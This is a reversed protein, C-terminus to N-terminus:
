PASLTLTGGEALTGFRCREPPLAGLWAAHIEPDRLRCLAYAGPEARRVVVRGDTVRGGEREVWRALGGVTEIAGEHVVLLTGAGEPQGAAEPGALVLRGAAISLPILTVEDNTVRLRAMRLAYGPASVTVGVEGADRPIEMQWGGDAGTRLFSRPVGPPLWAQVAAGGVPGAESTVRGVFRTPGGVILVLEQEEGERVELPVRDSFGRASEAIVTYSGPPLDALEFSGLDNAVALVQAATAVDVATVQAGPQGRGDSSVVAGRIPSSLLALEVWAPADGTAAPIVLGEVRRSIPPSSADVQVTWREDAADRPIPLFGAFAGDEDSELQVPGSSGMFLLRARLPRSGLHVRGEIARIPVRISLGTTDNGLGLKVLRNDWPAGMDDMVVVRYTGASLGEKSWRGDASAPAAEVVSRWRPAVASLALKWPRRGPGLPPRVTVELALEELVIPAALRTEAELQVTVLTSASADPCDVSLVHEGPPPGVLQFFGCEGTRATYVRPGEAAQGRPPPRRPGEVAISAQCPALPSTGDARAVLGSVSAGAQLAIPDLRSQGGAALARVGAYHPVFGEPRIEVEFV